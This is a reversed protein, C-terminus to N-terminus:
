SATEWLRDARERYWRAEEALQELETELDKGTDLRMRTSVFMPRGRMPEDRGDYHFSFMRANDCGPNNSWETVAWGDVNLREAVVAHLADSWKHFRREVATDPLPDNARDAATTALTALLKQRAKM